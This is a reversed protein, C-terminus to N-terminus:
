KSWTNDDRNVDAMRQSADIEIKEMDSFNINAEFTYTPHTWYWDRQIVRNMGSENPKEGRMLGIPIYHMEQSGDTKTIIVDLPMPMEHVRALTISTKEGSRVVDKVAYDIKKISNVWYDYYWDLELNSTKEMVRIFDVLDPHKFKWENFYRILGKDRAEEGIVYGLQALSVAGKSYAARGYAFNTTYHDSHTSMPEEKGSAALAFYGRYNGSNPRSSNSGFLYAMTRSTAFSTFGEDMWSFYSENTALVGQYWSHLAEHVTVGVLSQLSRHGTILTSMPYEMGGDGGQVVSFEPYPYVGYNRNLFEFAKITYEPLQSWNSTASDEEYLFHLKPGNPVQATKHVYDPDAAWMFDHVNEAKFKWTLMKGKRKPEERGTEQYGYGVENGNQLVGTGGLVYNKDITIEVQYDGWPAYFERGVYPHAHWGRDDYEAIKPFWQAMSYSIGERNDRGSRRIQSPVQGEFSLELKTITGPLIPDALMVELITSEVKYSLPKGNQTLTTVRNYGIESESLNFIRDTVRRDPDEITRSRIDMMSNPQFANFYLHYFVKNLTDPSNNTYKLVQNGVFQHTKVDFDITMSYDVAQQWYNPQALASIAVALGFISLLNKM